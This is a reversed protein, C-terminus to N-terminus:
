RTPSRGRPAFRGRRATSHPSSDDGATDIERGRLAVLERRVLAHHRDLLEHWRRDGLAVARETSGVVDTFLVTALVRDHDARHRVGTLFEEIEGLARDVDGAFLVHDDGPLEVYRAGARARRSLPWARRRDRPRRSSAHHADAGPDRRARSARRDGREHSPARGARGPESWQARSRGVWQRFSADGALSPAYVDASAGTGWAERMAAIRAERGEARRGWPYDEAWSSRAYTGFLVLAVTREPYTAAFLISMPGGESVGILAARESGAADMVARVDDMRQELTPVAV